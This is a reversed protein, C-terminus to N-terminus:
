SLELFWLLCLPGDLYIHTSGQANGVERFNSFLIYLSRSFYIFASFGQCSYVFSWFLTFNSFSFSFYNFLMFYMCIRNLVSFQDVPTWLHCMWGFDSARISVTIVSSHSTPNDCCVNLLSTWLNLGLCLHSLENLLVVSSGLPGYDLLISVSLCEWIWLDCTASKIDLWYRNCRWIQIPM